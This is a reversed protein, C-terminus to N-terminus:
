FGAPETWSGPTDREYGAASAVEASSCCFSSEWETVDGQSEVGGWFLGVSSTEPDSRDSGEAFTEAATSPFFCYDSHTVLDRRRRVGTGNAMGASKPRRWTTPHSPNLQARGSAGGKQQGAIRPVGVAAATEDQASDPTSDKLGLRGTAGGCTQTERPRQCGVRSSTRGPVSVGAASKPRPRRKVRAGSEAPVDCPAFAPAAAAAAAPAVLRRPAEAIGNGLRVEMVPVPLLGSGAATASATTSKVSAASSPRTDRAVSARLKAIVRSTSPTKENEDPLSQWGSSESASGLGSYTYGLGHSTGGIGNHGNGGGSRGRKGDTTTSLVEEGEPPRPLQVMVAKSRGSSHPAPEAAPLTENATTAAAAAAAAAALPEHPEEGDVSNDSSHHGGPRDGAEHAEAPAAGEHDRTRIGKLTSGDNALGSVEDNFALCYPADGWRKKGNGSGGSTKVCPVKV